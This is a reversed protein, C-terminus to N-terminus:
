RPILAGGRMRGAEHGAGLDQHATPADKPMRRADPQNTAEASPPASASPPSAWVPAGGVPHRRFGDAPDFMRIRGLLITRCLRDPDFPKFLYDLAGLALAAHALAVNGSASMVIVGVDPHNWYIERLGDLGALGDEGAHDLDLLVLDPGDDDIAKLAQALTATQRAAYGEAALRDALRTAADQDPDVILIRGGLSM